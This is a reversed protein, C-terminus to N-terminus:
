RKFEIRCSKVEYEVFLDLAASMYLVFEPLVVLFRMTFPVVLEQVIGHLGM